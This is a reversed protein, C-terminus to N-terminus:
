IFDLMVVFQAEVFLVQVFSWFLIRHFTSYGECVLDAMYIVPKTNSLGGVTLLALLGWTTSFHLCMGLNVTVHRIAHPSQSSTVRSTSTNDCRHLTEARSWLISFNSFSLVSPTWHLFFPQVSTCPSSPSYWFSSSPSIFAALPDKKTNCYGFMWGWISYHSMVLNVSVEVRLVKVM